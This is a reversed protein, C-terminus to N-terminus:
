KNKGQFNRIYLVEIAYAGLAGLVAGAIVDSAFHVGVVVRSIGVLAAVALLALGAKRNLHYAMAAILFAVMTHVSPFANDLWTSDIISAAGIAVFPRARFALAGVILNFVVLAVGVFTTNLILHWFDLGRRRALYPFALFSLVLAIIAWQALLIFAFDAADSRAALSNLALTLAHDISM